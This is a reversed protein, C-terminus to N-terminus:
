HSKIIFRKNWKMENTNGEKKWKIDMDTSIKKKWLTTRQFKERSSRDLGWHSDVTCINWKVPLGWIVDQFICVTSSFTLFHTVVHMNGADIRHERPQILGKREPLRASHAYHVCMCNCVIGHQSLQVCVVYKVCTSVTVYSIKDNCNCSLLHGYEPINRSSYKEGSPSEKTRDKM